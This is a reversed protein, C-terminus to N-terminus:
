RLRRATDDARRIGCLGQGNGSPRANLDSHPASGSRLFGGAAGESFVPLPIKLAIKGILGM